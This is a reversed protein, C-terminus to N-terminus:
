SRAAGDLTSSIWEGLDVQARQAATQWRERREPSVSLQLTAGPLANGTGDRPARSARLQRRLENRSWGASEARSLWFDQQDEPLGAVEVHHQFSLTDRRRSMVFRGAVWAYNRLTQYDLSTEEIARRYRDPYRERGFILWDGIWWAASDWVLFIQQGIHKWNDYSM